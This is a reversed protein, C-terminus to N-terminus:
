ENPSLYGGASEIRMRREDLLRDMTKLDEEDITWGASGATEEIQSPRRAGVIASTVEPRRLVWAVSLQAVTKDYKAAIGKLREVADLNISLNPEQYEKTNRRWDDKAVRNLDFKGTLIGAQMPSYALFGINHERMFDFTGREPYRRLMSYAAQLSAMPRIAQTNHMHNMDYQFNSVGAYRIKGAEILEGIARWGEEIHESDTPWHIQYLDIVDTKLRRLSDECEKKVSAARLDNGIERKENWVMSCKTALIVDKRRGAIAKGVVEESHGLGYVPATDIWNIGLELARHIAAVSENDDQEGWGFAYGGGGVAWAGFGVETLHLNTTGLQRTQM